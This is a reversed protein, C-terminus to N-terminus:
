DRQTILSLGIQRQSASLEEGFSKSKTKAILEQFAQRAMAAQQGDLGLAMVVKDVTKDPPLALDKDSLAAFAQLVDQASVGIDGMKRLFDNWVVRRTLSNAPDDQMASAPAQSLLGNQPTNTVGRENM